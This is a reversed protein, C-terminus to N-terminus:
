RQPEGKFVQDVTTTFTDLSSASVKLSKLTGRVHIRMLENEAKSWVPGVIPVNLWKDSNTNFTLDVQKTAFDLRGTGQLAMDRGALQIQELTVRNGQVSYHATGRQFPASTPLALNTVQLLGLVLPIQYMRDGEARVDGHGRRTSRDNVGGSLELSASIRGTLNADPTTALGEAVGSLESIDAENLIISMAYRDVGQDTLSVALDGALEGGAVKAHLDSIHLTSEDEPKSIKAMLDTSPRLAVKLSPAALDGSLSLLKGDRISGTLNATGRLEDIPVGVNMSANQCDIQVAFDVDPGVPQTSPAIISAPKYSLKTFDFGIAGTLSLGQLVQVLGKPLSKQLQDDAALNKGSLRMDWAATPDDLRWSGGVAIQGDRDRATLDWQALQQPILDVKGAVEELQLPQAEPALRPAIAMKIPRIEIAMPGNTQTSDYHIQVNGTGAPQIQNWIERARDPLLERLPADFALNDAQVSVQMVPKPDSWDLSGRALLIADGRRARLEVDSLRGPTLNARGSVGTATVIGHPSVSGDSLTLDLDFGPLPSKITGNADLKGAIGLSQLHERPAAPLAALLDADIPVDMAAIRLDPTFEKGADDFAVTGGILMSAAGHRGQVGTLTVFGPRVALSGEIKDLKYPFSACTMQGNAFKVDTNVIWPLGKAKGAQERIIESTFSAGLGAGFGEHKVDMWDMTRRVPEPLSSRLLEEYTIGSGRVNIEGGTTDDFPGIWGDLSLEANANPSGDAARGHLNTMRLLDFGLTDDHEVSMHGTIHHVPYPLDAFTFSGDTVDMTAEVHLAGGESERHLRGSVVARGYPKFQDYIKIAAAPLSAISPLDPSLNIEGVSHLTFDMPSNPSYGGLKGDVAFDSNECTATLNRATIGDNTFILSGRADAFAIPPAEIRPAIRLNVGDLDAEVKFGNTDYDVKIAAAGALAHESCWRSVPNPLMTQTDRGLVVNQLAASVHGTPLDFSGAITPGIVQSGRSQFTFEYKRPHSSTADLPGFRGDVAMWGVRSSVGNRVELYDVQADRLLVEPFGSFVSGTPRSSPWQQQGLFQYNWQGNDINESLRVHPDAVIIQTAALRGTLLDRLNCGVSVSGADLLPILNGDPGTASLRVDKLELGDFISLRASGISVHGGVLAGLSDAAIQRLRSENTFYFYAGLASWLVLMMAITAVRRTHGIRPRLPHRERWANGNKLPQQTTNSM